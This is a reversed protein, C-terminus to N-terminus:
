KSVEIVYTTRIDETTHIYIKVCTVTKKFIGSEICEVDDIAAYTGAKILRNKIGEFWEEALSMAAEWTTTEYERTAKHTQFGSNNGIAYQKVKFM